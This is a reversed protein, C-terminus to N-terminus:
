HGHAHGHGHDDAAGHGHADDAPPEDDAESRVIPGIVAAALFMGAVIILMPGAWTRADSPLTPQQPAAAATEHGSSAPENARGTVAVPHSPTEQGHVVGTVTLLGFWAILLGAMRIPKM